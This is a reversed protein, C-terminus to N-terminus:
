QRGIPFAVYRRCEGIQFSGRLIDAIRVKAGISSRQEKRNTPSFLCTSLDGPGQLEIWGAAMAGFLALWSIFVIMISAYCGLKAAMGIPNYEDLASWLQSDVDQHRPLKRSM